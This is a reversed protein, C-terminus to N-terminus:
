YLIYNHLINNKTHLTNTMQTHKLCLNERLAGNYSGEFLASIISTGAPHPPFTHARGFKKEIKQIKPFFNVDRRVTPVWRRLTRYGGGYKIVCNNEHLKRCVDQWIIPKKTGKERIPAGECISSRSSTCGIASGAAPYPPPALFMFDILCGKAAM